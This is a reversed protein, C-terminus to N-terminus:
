IHSFHHKCAEEFDDTTDGTACYEQYEEESSDIMDYDDYKKIPRGREEDIIKMNRFSISKLNVHTM